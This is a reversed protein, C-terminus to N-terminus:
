KSVEDDIRKIGFKGFSRPKGSSKACIMALTSLNAKKIMYGGNDLALFCGHATALHYNLYTRFWSYEKAGKKEVYSTERSVSAADCIEDHSVFKNKDAPNNWIKTVLSIVDTASLDYNPFIKSTAYNIRSKQIKGEIMKRYMTDYGKNNM